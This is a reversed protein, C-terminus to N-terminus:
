KEMDLIDWKNIKKKTTNNEKKPLTSPMDFISLNDPEYYSFAESIDNNNYTHINQITEQIPLSNLFSSTKKERRQRSEKIFMYTCYCIGTILFLICPLFIILCVISHLTM